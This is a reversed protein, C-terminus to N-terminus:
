KKTCRWITENSGPMTGLFDKEHVSEVEPDGIPELIQTVILKNKKEKLMYAPGNLVVDGRGNSPVFYNIQAAGGADNM